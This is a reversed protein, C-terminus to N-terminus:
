IRTTFNPKKQQRKYNKQERVNQMRITQHKYKIIKIILIVTM